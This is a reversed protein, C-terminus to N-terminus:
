NEIKNLHFAVSFKEDSDLAESIMWVVVGVFLLEVQGQQLEDRRRRDGVHDVDSAQRGVVALRVVADPHGDASPARGREASALRLLQLHAADDTKGVGPAVGDVAADRGVLDAGAGVVEVRVGALSVASTAVRAAELPNM